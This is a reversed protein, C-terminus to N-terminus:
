LVRLGGSSMGTINYGKELFYAIRRVIDEEIVEGPVLLPIGPPYLSVYDASVKKISEPLSVTVSDRRHDSAEYIEMIKQGFVDYRDMGQHPNKKVPTCKGDIIKLTDYLKEFDSESTCVSTMCIVYSSCAAEVDIGSIKWLQESLFLGTEKCRNMSFVLKGCDYEFLDINHPSILYINRLNRCRNRFFTLNDVHKDVDYVNEHMNVISYETSALLLYSPSSTEFMDLMRSIDEPCIRESCLHLLATQTLAPLTKHTSQIVIDAGCELASKPFGHHFIFHAGHAEDVILPIDYNHLIESASAIDSVVGEYTPSTLVVCRIDPHKRVQDSLDSVRIQGSIQHEEIYEPCCYVVKLRLLEIAHYVSKHCNRAIMIKDGTKCVAAISSLIGLTSGGVLYWTEKTHYIQKMLDMSERIIGEPRHLDDYDRIETIDCAEVSPFAGKEKRMHGPMHFPIRNEKKLAILKDYIPKRM